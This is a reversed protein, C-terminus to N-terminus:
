CDNGGKHVRKKGFRPHKTASFVGNEKQNELQKGVSKRSFFHTSKEM